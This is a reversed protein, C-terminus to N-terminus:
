PSYWKSTMLPWPGDGQGLFSLFTLTQARAAPKSSYIYIYIYIYIYTYIYIYIDMHIHIHSWPFGTNQWWVNGFVDHANNNPPQKETQNGIRNWRDTQKAVRDSKGVTKPGLFVDLFSAQSDWFLTTFRLFQSEGRFGPNRIIAPPHLICQSKIKSLQKIHICHMYM